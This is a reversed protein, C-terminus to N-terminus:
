RIAEASPPEVSGLIDDIVDDPSVGSLDSDTTLVLRHQFVPAALKKLDNPVVYERGAIAAKAKAANQIAIVARPSAGHAVDPHVRTVEVLDQLYGTVSEVSRVDAVAARADLIAERDVVQDISEPGLDRDADFRDLLERETARDTVEMVSKLMFRDRQAEPLEFVGEFELPNQTAIVM